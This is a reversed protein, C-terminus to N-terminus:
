IDLTLHQVHETFLIKAQHEIWGQSLAYTVILTIVSLLAAKLIPKQNIPTETTHKLPEKFLRISKHVRHQQIIDHSTQILNDLVLRGDARQHYEGEVGAILCFYSLEILDIYQTARENIYHIIDFFRTQPSKEDQAIPTFAQFSAEKGYLRMYNKGLLEDLTVCLLFHAIVSFEDAYRISKLRNQFANLEHEINDRIIDVSPITQSTCLREILSLLPGAAAVLPNTTSATTFLKSRYYGQGAQPVIAPLAFRSMLSASSPEASM